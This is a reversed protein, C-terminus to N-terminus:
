DLPSRSVLVLNSGATRKKGKNKQMAFERVPRTSSVAADDLHFEVEAAGSLAGDEEVLDNRYELAPIVASVDTRARQRIRPALHPM